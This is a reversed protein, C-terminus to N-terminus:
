VETTTTTTNERRRNGWQVDYCFLRPAKFGNRKYFTMLSQWSSFLYYFYSCILFRMARLFQAFPAAFSFPLSLRFYYCASLFDALFIHISRYNKQAPFTFSYNFSHHSQPASPFSFCSFFSKHHLSNFM